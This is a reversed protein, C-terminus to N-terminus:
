VAPPLFSFYLSEFALALADSIIIGVIGRCILLRLTSNSKDTKKLLFFDAIGKPIYLFSIVGFIEILGNISKALKNSYDSYNGINGVSLTSLAEARQMTLLFITILILILSLLPTLVPGFFNYIKKM